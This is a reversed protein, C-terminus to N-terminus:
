KAELVKLLCEALARQPNKNVIEICLEKAYKAAEYSDNPHPTFRLKHEIVLPMLVEWELYNPFCCYLERREGYWMLTDGVIETAFGAPPEIYAGLAKALSKNLEFDTM